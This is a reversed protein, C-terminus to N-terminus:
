WSKEDGKVKYFATLWEESEYDLCEYLRNITALEDLDTTKYYLETLIQILYDRCKEDITYAM